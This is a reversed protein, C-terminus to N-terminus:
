GVVVTLATPISVMQGAESGTGSLLSICYAGRPVNTLTCSVAFGNRMADDTKGPAVADPRRERTYVTAGFVASPLESRGTATLAIVLLDSSALSVGGTDIWGRIFLINERNLLLVGSAPCAHGNVTDIYVREDPSCPMIDVLDGILVFPSISSGDRQRSSQLMREFVRASRKLKAILALAGSASSQDSGGAAEVALAHLLKADDSIANRVARLYGHGHQRDPELHAGEAWENWANIFVIQCSNDAFRRTENVIHTLWAEFLAPTSGRFVNGTAGKRSTNDWSPMAARFQPYPARPRAVEAAVVDEYNYIRGTFGPALASVEQSVDPASLGHPPFQCSSDCGYDYPNTLGFSEVMCVHLGSFGNQQVIERWRAITAAPNTLLSIRYVLLLPKDDIRIYKDSHFYYLCSTIFEADNDESHRQAILVDTDSGDWRRSWNENAWCLCFDLDIDNTVHRQVPLTLMTKGSFWYYYYCFASIGYQKALAVQASHVEAVRLDYFGLDAPLRPQHHGPFYPRGASVNTWDTFGDGWWENNEAFPHYQPLYFAVLRTEAKDAYIRAESLLLDRQQIYNTSEAATILRKFLTFIDSVAIEMSRLRASLPLSLGCNSIAVQFLSGLPRRQHKIQELGTCIESVARLSSSTLTFQFGPKCPFSIKRAIDKRVHRTTTHGITIGLISIELEVPSSTNDAAICWGSLAM